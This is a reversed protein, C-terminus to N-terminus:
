KLNLLLKTLLILQKSTESCALLLQSISLGVGGVIFLRNSIPPYISYVSLFSHQMKKITHTHITSSPKLLYPAQQLWQTFQSVASGKTVINFLQLYVVHPVLHPIVYHSFLKDNCSFLCLLNQSRVDLVPIYCWFLYFCPIQKYSAPFSISTTKDIIIFLLVCSPITPCCTVYSPISTYFQQSCLQYIVKVLLM